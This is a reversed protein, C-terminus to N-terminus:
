QDSLFEMRTNRKAAPIKKLVDSWEKYNIRGTYGVKEYKKHRSDDKVKLRPEDSRFTILWPDITDKRPHSRIIRGIRQVISKTGGRSTYEILTERKPDDLAEEIMQYTGFVVRKKLANEQAEPGMGGVLLACHKKVFGPAMRELYAPVSDDSFNIKRVGDKKLVKDPEEGRVFAEIQKEEDYDVVLDELTKRKGGKKKGSSIGAEECLEQTFIQIIRDTVAFIYRGRDFMELTLRAKIENLDPNKALASQMYVSQIHYKFQLAYAPLLIRCYTHISQIQLKNSSTDDEMLYATRGLQDHLAKTLGDERFVTATLGLKYKCNFATVISSFTSAPLHHAEDFVVADFKDFFGSERHPKSPEINLIEKDEISKMRKLQRELKDDKAKLSANAERKRKAKRQNYDTELKVRHRKEPGEEEKIWTTLTKISIVTIDCDDVNYSTGGKVIKVRANPIFKAIGKIDEETDSKGVWQYLIRDTGVCVAVKPPKGEQNLDRLANSVIYLATATKGKGCPLSLFCSGEKQLCPVVAEVAERQHKYLKNNTEDFEFTDEDATENSYFTPVNDIAKGFLRRALSTPLSIGGLKKRSKSSIAGFGRKPTDEPYRDWPIERYLPWSVEKKLGTKRDTGAFDTQTPKATGEQKIYDYINQAQTSGLRCLDIVFGHSFRSYKLVERKDQETLLIDSKSSKAIENKKAQDRIKLANSATKLGDEDEDEDDIIVFRNGKLVATM